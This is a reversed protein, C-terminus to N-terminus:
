SYSMLSHATTLALIGEMKSLEGPFLLKGMDSVVSHSWRQLQRRGAERGVTRPHPPDVQTDDYRPAHHSQDLCEPGGPLERGLGTALNSSIM